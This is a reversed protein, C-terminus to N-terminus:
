IKGQIEARCGNKESDNNADTQCLHAKIPSIVIGKEQQFIKTPMISISNYPFLKQQPTPATVAQLYIPYKLQRSIIQCSGAWIKQFTILM